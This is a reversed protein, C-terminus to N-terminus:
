YTLLLISYFVKKDLEKQLTRISLIMQMIKEKNDHEKDIPLQTKSVNAYISEQDQGLTRSTLIPSYSMASEKRKHLEQIAKKLETNETELMANKQTLELRNDALDITSEMQFNKAQVKIEENIVANTKVKSAGCAFLLTALTEDFQILSPSVCAVLTSKANGGLSNTLIRTLKSDRYPIHQSQKGNILASICNGLASISKNISKAEDLRKSTSKSRSLRESGALDVITLM